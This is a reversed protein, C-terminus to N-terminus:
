TPLDGRTLEALVTDFAQSVADRSEDTHDLMDFGHRGNPVDIIALHAGCARAALIFAEVTDAIARRERGVRTLVIPLMGATLVAEAPRFRSDMTRGPLSALVPYTAAVCRLWRPPRRLWDAILPGGGSFFWIAVRDADVRPDARILESAADIDASATSYDALDHLRHDVTVGVVGRAAALCGYGRYVPWGRPTPQLDPPVPGGHVFIIAPTPQTGKPLYLDVRGHREPVIAEVPLVFPMLYDPGDV